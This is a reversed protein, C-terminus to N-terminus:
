SKRQMTGGVVAQAEVLVQTEKRRGLVVVMAKSRGFGMLDNGEM